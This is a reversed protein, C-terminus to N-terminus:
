DDVAEVLELFRPRVWWEGGGMDPTDFRVLVRDDDPTPVRGPQVTGCDGIRTRLIPNALPHAGTMRVRDGPKQM